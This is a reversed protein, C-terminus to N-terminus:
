FDAYSGFFGSKCCEFPDSSDFDARLDPELVDNTGGPFSVRYGQRGRRFPKVEVIVGRTNTDVLIVRDGVKFDAM